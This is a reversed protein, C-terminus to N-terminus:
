TPLVRGEALATNLENEIRKAEDFKGAQELRLQKLSESQYDAASYTRKNQPTLNPSANSKSPAVQRQLERSAPTPAPVRPPASPNHQPFREYFADFLEKVAGVDLRGAAAKLAQDWTAAQGPIRTALWTQCEPTQQAAQWGPVATDLREFFSQQATRQQTQAVEGVSGKTVQLEQQLAEIQNKYTVERQGFEDRAIRRALDVLEPGFADVDSKTVLETPAQPPTAPQQAARTLEDIRGTAADFKTTLDRVQQQLQPVLTSFQGQLSRYRQAWTESNPDDVPPAPPNTPPQPTQEQPPAAPQPTEPPDTPEPPTAAATLQEDYERMADAQRQVQKPLSM